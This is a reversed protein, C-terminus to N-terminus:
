GVCIEEIPLKFGMLKVTYNLLFEKMEAFLICMSRLQVYNYMTWRILVAGFIDYKLAISFFTRVEAWRDGVVGFAGISRESFKRQGHSKRSM